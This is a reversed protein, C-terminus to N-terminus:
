FMGISIGHSLARAVGRSFFEMKTKKKEAVVSVCQHSHQANVCLHCDCSQHASTVKRVCIFARLLELTAMESIRERVRESRIKRSVFHCM